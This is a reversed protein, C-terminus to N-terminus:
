EGVGQYLQYYKGFEQEVKKQLEGKEYKGTFRLLDQLIQLSLSKEYRIADQFEVGMAYYFELDETVISFLVEALSDAKEKAGALYYGEVLGTTFIGIPLKENPILEVCRDLVVVASDKKGESILSKALRVFNNRVKMVLLTRRSYYDLYVDPENIRGWKFKNMLNDYMVDQNIRGYDVIGRKETKIPVLRYAFGELQFYDELGIADETGGTVFYVPRDWDNQALFDILMLQSKLIYNKNITIDIHPVIKDADEQAVTGNSLVREKNVPIRFNKTPIYDIWENDRTRIKTGRSDNRVFDIIKGIETFEDIREIIFVQNNTGDQYKKLPLSLPLAESEYAKRKMQDIYWDTNYLMMNVVRVDTRIGEVEQAYWLPFTDNDGNTFLIANPACSNLYNYAIDRAVYKGSRDHDDWNERALIGPVLILWVLGAIIAGASGPIYKKLIDYFALVGLGIWITFVYFSGAYAYDRERPQNPYQNLYIVIALGTMLFLLSTVLSNKKDRQLQYLFGMLGLLLPLMLYENRSPTDMSEPLDDQPGLRIEDLFDIGTLWNGKLPGGHGQIDNQRGSFNWMFYRLYMHGVQYNIFFRINEVFTPKYITKTEGSGDTIKVPTGKIKGWKRYQVKHDSQPSWMRPFFTMFRDDYIVEPSYKIIEYKGNRPRYTPKGNEIAETPANYYQGYLLPSSGYQERNLYYLLSFVNEPNNEDIPPDAQSRIVIMAFSSYGILIVAASTLITNLIVKNNHALYYVVGSVILWLVLNVFFTSGLFPVGLLTIAIISFVATEIESKKRFHTYYIALILSFVLLIFHVLVGSNYFLGFTNVFLLEFQSSTKCIGPIIGWMIIAILVVSVMLVVTFGKVSFSHKRFYYVLVIAPIALLNLLHVGISLGMLYAILILWRDAYKEDAVNEWKLIAWFVVATFLSSTGYVEGEVASFWFTDSFTYALAGVLGSALIAIMNGNTIEKDRNFIKVALHTITWFLFMITFASAFASLANIMKAANEVNSGAFLSAVRAMIMHLPAGPPHGVELKFASAIFEGCDWLSTTPEITMLYVVLAILFTIWGLTRNYIKFNKM